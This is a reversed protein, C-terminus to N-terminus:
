VRDNIKETKKKLCTLHVEVNNIKSAPLLLVKDM